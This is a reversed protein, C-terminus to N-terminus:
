SYRKYLEEYRHDGSRAILDILSLADNRTGPSELATEILKREEEERYIWPPRVLEQHMVLYFKVAREPDREAEKALYVQFSPWGVDRNAAREIHPLLAEMLPWVSAIPELDPVKELLRAFWIMEDDFDTSHQSATAEHARWDWLSRM